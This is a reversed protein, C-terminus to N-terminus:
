KLPIEATGWRVAVARGLDIPAEFPAYSENWCADEDCSGMTGSLSIERGDEMVVAIEAGPMFARLVEVAEGDEGSIGVVAEVSPVPEKEPATWHYRWRMGLPSIRMSDLVLSDCYDRSVTVGSVDLTRSQIGGTCSGINFSWSGTLVPRYEKDPSQVWLGPITLIKDTGDSFDVDERPWIRLIATLPAAESSREAWSYEWNNNLERGRADTLSMRIGDGDMFQYFGEDESYNPLTVGEPPTIELMLYYFDQDGFAALPTMVTGNSEAAPLEQSLTDIVAQQEEDLSDFFRNWVPGAAAGVSGVLLVAALLAALGKRTWNRRPAPRAELLADTLAARGTETFAVRNLENKYVNQEM